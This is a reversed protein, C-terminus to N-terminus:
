PEPAAPPLRARTSIPTFPPARRQAAEDHSSTRRKATGRDCNAQLLAHEGIATLLGFPIRQQSANDRAQPDAQESIFSQWCCSWIVSVLVCSSYGGRAIADLNAVALPERNQQTTFRPLFHGLARRLRRSADNAQKEAPRPRARQVQSRLADCEAAAYSGRGSRAARSECM